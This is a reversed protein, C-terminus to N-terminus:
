PAREGVRLFFEKAFLVPGCATTACPAAAVHGVVLVGGPARLAASARDLTAADAAKETVGLDVRDVLLEGGEDLPVATATPCPPFACAVVTATARYFSGDPTSGTAGRWGEDADLVLFRDGDVTADEERARLVAKEGADLAARLADEEESRLRLRDLLISAVPCEARESGDACRMM